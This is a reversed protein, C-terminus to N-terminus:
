DGIWKTYIVEAKECKLYKFLSSADRTAKSGYYVRSVGMAKAGEEVVRFLKVANWKGRACPLLRFIDVVMAKCSAYHLEYNVIGMFYGVLEGDDRLTALLLSGDSNLTEYIDYRPELTVKDKHLALEEWHAHYLPKLEDICKSYSEIQATIM